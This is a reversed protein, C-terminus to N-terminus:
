HHVVGALAEARVLCQVLAALAATDRVRTQADMVRLELTGFRPQLRADWWLFTPEPIADARLLVDVAEVYDGYRLFHRPPGTRPFTAFVPTRASSLGSDRGQWYPSNAAL